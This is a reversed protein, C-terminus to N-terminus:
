SEISTRLMSTSGIRMPLCPILGMADSSVSLSRTLLTVGIAITQGPRVM